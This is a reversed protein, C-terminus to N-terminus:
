SQSRSISLRADSTMGARRRIAELDADQTTDGTSTGPTAPRNPTPLAVVPATVPPTRTTGSPARDIRLSSIGRSAFANLGDVYPNRLVPLDKDTVTPTSVTKSAKTTCM